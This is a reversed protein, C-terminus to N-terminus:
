RHKEASLDIGQRKSNGGAPLLASTSRHSPCGPGLGFAAGASAGPDDDVAPCAKLEASDWRAAM